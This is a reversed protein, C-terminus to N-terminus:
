SAFPPPRASVPLSRQTNQWAGEFVRVADVVRWGFVPSAAFVLAAGKRLQPSETPQLNKQLSLLPGPPYGLVQLRVLGAGGNVSPPHFSALTAPGGAVLCVTFLLV